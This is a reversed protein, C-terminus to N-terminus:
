NILVRYEDYTTNLLARKYIGTRGFKFTTDTATVAYAGNVIGYLTDGSATFDLTVNNFNPAVTCSALQTYNSGDRKYIGCAWTGYVFRYFHQDDVYRIYLGTYGTDTSNVKVHVNGDHLHLWSLIADTGTAGITGTDGMVDTTESLAGNVWSWNAPGHLNPTATIFEFENLDQATDFNLPYPNGPNKTFGQSWSPFRQGNDCMWYRINEGAPDLNNMIKCKFRGSSPDGNTAYGKQRELQFITQVISSDAPINASFATTQSQNGSNCPGPDHGSKLFGYTIWSTGSLFHTLPTGSDGDCGINGAKGDYTLFTPTRRVQPLGPPQWTDSAKFGQSRVHLLGHRQIKDSGSDLGATQGFGWGFIDLSDEPITGYVKKTGFAFRHNIPKDVGCSTFECSDIGTASTIELLQVDNWSGADIGSATPGWGTPRHRAVTYTQAGIMANQYVGGVLTRPGSRAIKITAPVNCHAATVLYWSNIVGATCIGSNSTTLLYVTYPTGNEQNTVQPPTAGPANSSTVEDSTRAVDEEPAAGCGFTGLALTGLIWSVHSPKRALACGQGICGITNKMVAIGESSGLDHEESRNDVTPRLRAPM